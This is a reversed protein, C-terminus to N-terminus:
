HFVVHLRDQSVQRIRRIATKNAPPCLHKGVFITPSHSSFTIVTLFLDTINATMPKCWYLVPSAEGWAAKDHPPLARKVLAQLLLM